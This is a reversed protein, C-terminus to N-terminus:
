FPPGEDADGSSHQRDSKKYDAPFLTLVLDKSSHIVVCYDVRISITGNDNKWAAGVNNKENTSKNLASLRYDPMRGAV